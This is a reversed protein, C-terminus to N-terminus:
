VTPRPASNEVHTGTPHGYIPEVRLIAGDSAVVRVHTGRPMHPGVAPWIKMDLRVAGHGEIMPTTMVGEHDVPDPLRRPSGRRFIISRRPVRPYRSFSIIVAMISTAAFLLAQEDGDLQHILDDFLGVVGAAIGFSLFLGAPVALEVLALAVGVAYWMMASM